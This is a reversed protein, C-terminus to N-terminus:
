MYGVVTRGAAKGATQRECHTALESLAIENLHPTLAEFDPRWEGALRAWLRRRLPWDVNAVIGFMQVRRMIFPLVSGPYDNGSANGVSAICGDVCMSKLLGSLLPGGVNDIAAAFREHELAKTSALLSDTLMVESAGLALLAAEQGPKRTLATVSYGARALIAVALVGVAGTAGDVAIPGKSPSVGLQEFRDLCLAVTFGPVGLM